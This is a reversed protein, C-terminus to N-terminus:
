DFHAKVGIWSHNETTVIWSCNFLGHDNEHVALGNPSAFTQPVIWFWVLESLVKM